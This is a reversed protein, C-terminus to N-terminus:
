ESSTRLPATMCIFFVHLGVECSTLIEVGSQATRAAAPIPASIASRIPDVPTRTIPSGARSDAGDATGPGAPCPGPLGPDSGLHGSLGQVPREGRHGRRGAPARRARDVLGRRPLEYPNEPM